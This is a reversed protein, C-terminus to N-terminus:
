KRENDNVGSDYEAYEELKTGDLLVRKRSYDVNRSYEPQFIVRLSNICTPDFAEASETMGSRLAIKFRGLGNVKVIKSDQLAATLVEVFETLVALVDSKKASSNMEIQEAIYDLDVLGTHYAKAFFKGNLPNGPNVFKKIKYKVSM